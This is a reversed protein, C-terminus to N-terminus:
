RVTLRVTTRKPEFEATGSYRVTITHGGKALRPLVFTQPIGLLMVGTRLVRSGESVTIVGALGAPKVTVRIKAHSRTTISTDSAVASLTSTRRVLRSGLLTDSGASGPKNLAYLYMRFPARAAVIATRHFLFYATRFTFSHAGPMGRPGGLSVLYDRPGIGGDPDDSTGWFDLRGPSPSTASLFLGGPSGEAKPYHIFGKPWGSSRKIHRWDFTGGLSDESVLISGDAYVREVYAVHGHGPRLKSVWWAVAGVSPRDNVPVGAARAATGWTASGATGPPRMVVRGHTLRYAVYNTCNHGPLATWFSSRYVASYGFSSRGEARCNGFGSCMTSGQSTARAPAAALVSGAVGIAFGTLAASLRHRIRRTQAHHRNGHQEGIRSRM